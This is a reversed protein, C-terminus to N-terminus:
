SYKIKAILIAGNLLVMGTNTAVVPWDTSLVGYTVWLAGATVLLVFTKTSLDNVQRTRWVRRTQPWMSVVTLIGALYGLYPILRM